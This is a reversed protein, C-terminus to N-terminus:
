LHPPERGLEIKIVDVSEADFIHLFVPNEHQSELEELLGVAALSSVLGKGSHEELIHLVGFSSQALVM